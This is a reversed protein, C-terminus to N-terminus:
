FANQKIMDLTQQINTVPLAFLREPTQQLPGAELATDTTEDIIVFVFVPINMMLLQQIMQQRKDDWDLLILILGSLEGSSHRILDFLQQFKQQQCPQVCALIELMNAAKGFSRGTTFRYSETGIFMLDLLTDQNEISLAFSAAMSVAAEFKAASNGEIFTDLILGHRVFYEDRFEKVVPTGRKAYSRWHIARMPDGPQYDRLSLFEQSDGITSAHTIGGHHYKRHGALPLNPVRYTKPLILLTDPNPKRRISRFLGLPDPRAISSRSFQLYGRRVPTFEIEVEKEDRAPVSDVEIQPLTGGHRYKLLAVLRPYGIKRDFWNRQKDQPDYSTKFTKYDPFEAALEDILVLDKYASKDQNQIVMKYKLAENVTGYDPLLRRYRFNGRLFLSSIIALLLLMTTIAFVQYALSQRTDIGFIGSAVVGGLILLGASSFRHRLLQGLRHIFRFNLFLLKGPGTV